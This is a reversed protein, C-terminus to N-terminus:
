ETNLSKIKKHIILPSFERKGPLIPGSQKFAGIGQREPRRENADKFKTHVMDSGSGPVNASGSVAERRRDDKPPDSRWM